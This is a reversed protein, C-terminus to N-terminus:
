TALLALLMILYINSLVEKVFAANTPRTHEVLFGVNLSVNIKLEEKKIM